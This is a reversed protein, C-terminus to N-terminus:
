FTFYYISSRGMRELLVRILQFHTGHRDAQWMKLVQFVQHAPDREGKQAIKDLKDSSLPLYQGLDKWESGLAEAIVEFYRGMTPFDPKEYDLECM